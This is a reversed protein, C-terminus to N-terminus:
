RRKDMEIWEKLDEMAAKSNAAFYYWGRYAKLDDKRGSNGLGVFIRNAFKGCSIFPGYKSLHKEMFEIIDLENIFEDFSVWFMSMNPENHGQCCMNTKLGKRNFYQVIPICLEDLGKEKWYEETKWAYEFSLM